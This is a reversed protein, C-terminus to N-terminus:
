DIFGWHGSTFPWLSFLAPGLLNYEKVTGWYRSDSSNASNDGLAFYENYRQDENEKMTKKAFNYRFDSREANTYGGYGNEKSAVRQFGREKALEGNVYLSPADIRLTDGPVGALRKIYHSGAAQDRLRANEHITEIGITDFVFTEGRKPQRFHYSFKDVLVLDGSTLTGRFIPDGKKFHIGPQLRVLAGTAKNEIFAKRITEIRTAEGSPCSLTVVSGDSFSIKTRTFLFWNADIIGTIRVNNKATINYYRQGKLGFDIIQKGIWPKKWDTGEKPSEAIIGNLSPQMSGTPIRFPQVYYTRIGLAVVIAVFFVEINEEFFNPRRYRPLSSECAQTLLNEAKKVEEKNGSKIHELLTARKSEIADIKEQALLDRKYNLFKAAGKYLLKAEKKWKPTFM